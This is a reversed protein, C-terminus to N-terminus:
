YRRKSQFACNMFASDCESLVLCGRLVFPSQGLFDVTSASEAKGGSILRHSHGPLPAQENRAIGRTRGKAWYFPLVFGPGPAYGPLLRATTPPACGGGCMRRCLRIALVKNSKLAFCRSPCTLWRSKISILHFQNREDTKQQQRSRKNQGRRVSCIKTKRIDSPFGPDIEFM